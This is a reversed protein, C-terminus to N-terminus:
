ELATLPQHVVFHLIVCIVCVVEQERMSDYSKLSAYAGMFYYLPMTVPSPNLISRLVVCHGEFADMVTWQDM